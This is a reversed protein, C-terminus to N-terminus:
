AALKLSEELLRALEAALGRGAYGRAMRQFGLVADGVVRGDAHDGGIGREVLTLEAPERDHRLVAVGVGDARDVGMEVPVDHERQGGCRDRLGLGSLVEDAETSDGGVDHRAGDAPADVEGLIEPPERAVPRPM